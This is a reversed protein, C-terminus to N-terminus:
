NGGDNPNAHIQILKIEFDILDLILGDLKNRNVILCQKIQNLEELLEKSEHAIKLARQITKATKAGKNIEPNTIGTTKGLEIIENWEKLAGAYDYKDTM